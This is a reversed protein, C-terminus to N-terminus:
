GNIYDMMNSHYDSHVSEPEDADAVTIDFLYGDHYWQSGRRRAFEYLSGSLDIDTGSEGGELDTIFREETTTAPM